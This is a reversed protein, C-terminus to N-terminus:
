QASEFRQRQSGVAAMLRPALVSGAGPLSEFIAWDQQQQALRAINKDLEAITQRLVAIQRVAVAVMPQAAKLIAADETAPVASRIEALLVAIREPSWRHQRLLKELRAPKAKQLAGLTPWASLMEEVLATSLNAFWRVMQPFCTKLTDQLRNTLGTREDVLKRRNEVWGRLLRMDQSDPEVRRLRDRHRVLIEWLLHADGPDSKSRSPFWAQRYDALTKPHVPYLHVQAYKSLLVALSGRQQELAVAIPQQGFRELLETIWADVQEPTNQLTGTHAQDAGAESWRYVHEQDAWDLAVFAAYRPEAAAVRTSNM